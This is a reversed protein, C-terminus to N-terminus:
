NMLITKLNYNKLAFQIRLNNETSYEIIIILLNITKNQIPIFKAINYNYRRQIAKIECHKKVFTKM